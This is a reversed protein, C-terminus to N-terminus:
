ILRNFILDGRFKCPEKCALLECKSKVSGDKNIYKKLEQSMRTSCEQHSIIHELTRKTDICIEHSARGCLREKCKLLFKSVHGHEIVEVKTAIPYLDKISELDELWEDQANGYEVIPPIYFVMEDLEGNFLMNYCITRHRQNQALCAISMEKILAYYDGKHVTECLGLSEDNVQYALLDFHMDKLEEFDDMRVGSNYILRYLNRLEEKIRREFDNRESATEIYNEIFRLTYNWDKITKTHSMFTPVFMSLMFRANELALKEIQRNDLIYGISKNYDSLISILKTKWKNYLVSERVSVLNFNTYRGSKESTGYVKMNNLMMIIIKPIGELYITVNVHDAVSHHGTKLVTSCRKYAMENNRLRNSFYSDEEYCIGAQKGIYIRAERIDSESIGDVEKTIGTVIALQKNRNEM